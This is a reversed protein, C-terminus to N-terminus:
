EEDAGEAEKAAAAEAAKAEFAKMLTKYFTDDGKKNKKNYAKSEAIRAKKRKQVDSESEPSGKKGPNLEAMRTKNKLPNNHKPFTGPAELKPKLVSQVESSNIIRALDANEMAARPLHYGKKLPAGGKATGYIENLKKFAGETFVLFRGFAGGPALRLLNLNDVSTTEVGPINRMARKIGNDENYIVLPGCRMTYKRNRAKGQGRRVKKSDIVKQLDEGCGVTKLAEVAQKTKSISELSDSVVLPLESVESIRHGRAMVLPPLSSAALATAVAHRKMTVNVRRHWRRWVKTPNFMGGGRAQNGFTAQGARHTGGGPARPIRAVARGTGWSEAATDYGVKAGVAYAQRKNKSVNKHVERVLDPRLPSALVHPMVVTGTKEDSKECSYVSVVPRATAM